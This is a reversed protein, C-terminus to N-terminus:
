NNAGRGVQPEGDQPMHYRARIAALEGSAKLKKMGDALAQIWATRRIDQRAFGIRLPLAHELCGAKQIEQTVGLDKSLHQMVMEHELMVDFRGSLLKQVNTTGASTGYSFDLASRLAHNRAIFADMPGDDYGYDDIVGLRLAKLSVVGHYRWATDHRTYFCARSYAIPASLYLRADVPPAYVGEADGSAVALIARNLPLLVPGVKYGMSAMSQATVDVLYGDHIKGEKICVYPCWEDSALRVLGAAMACPAVGLGLLAVLGAQKGFTSLM